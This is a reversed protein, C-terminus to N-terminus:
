FTYDSTIGYKKMYRWLTTKSIGLEEAVKQRSGRHKKLLEALEAAKPDAPDSEETFGGMLNIQSRVFQTDVTRKDALLVIRECISSVQDLNGPWDYQCVYEMADPTLEIFRSYKKRWEDLCIEMWGPIDERRERLPPIDLTLVNLAYYLDARFAGELVKEKLDIDTTAMVRVNAVIPRNNGNHLLQGRVLNLLKYQMEMTLNEVHSLFLTGREALEAMCPTEEDHINYAGFLMVDLVEPKWASCDLTVFANDKLLSDNHICQAMVKKGSGSEGLLLVPAPYLSMKKAKELMAQTVPSKSIIHGFRYKALMGRQYLNRRLESSMEIVRTDEQLTFLAGDVKGDVMIPVINIIITRGNEGLVTTYSEQADVLASEVLFPRLKPIAEYVRKGLLDDPETHLMRYTVDNAKRVKHDMDIQLIGSLTNNLMTNIEASNRKEVYIAYAAREANALAERIGEPGVQLLRSRIGAEAALLCAQRGGIIAQAGLRVAESIATGLENEDAVDYRLLNVPFLDNFRSTDAFQNSLGILAVTPRQGELERCLESVHVAIEQSTARLEIVPIKATRRAITAQVGRAIILEFGNRELQHVREEMNEVPTHEVSMMSIHPYGRVLSVVLDRMDAYPIIFATKVMVFDKEEQSTWYFARLFQSM